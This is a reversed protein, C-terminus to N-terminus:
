RNEEIEDMEELAESVIIYDDRLRNVRNIYIDEPLDKKIEFYFEQIELILEKQKEFLKQLYRHIENILDIVDLNVILKILKLYKIELKLLEKYESDPRLLMNEYVTLRIDIDLNEMVNEDIIRKNNYIRIFTVLRTSKM